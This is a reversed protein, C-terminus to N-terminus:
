LIILDYNNNIIRLTRKLTFSEVKSEFHSSFLLQEQIVLLFYSKLTASAFIGIKQGIKM